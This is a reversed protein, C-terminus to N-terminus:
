ATLTEGDILGNGANVILSFAGHLRFRSFNAQKEKIKEEDNM